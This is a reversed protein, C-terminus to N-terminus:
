LNRVASLRVILPAAVSNAFSRMTVEGSGLAALGDLSRARHSPPASQDAAISELIPIAAAGLGHWQDADVGEYARLLADVQARTDRGQASAPTAAVAVFTSAVILWIVLLRM